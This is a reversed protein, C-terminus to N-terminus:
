LIQSRIVEDFAEIYAIQSLIIETQMTDSTNVSPETDNPIKLIEAEVGDLLEGFEHVLTDAEHDGFVDTIGLAMMVVIAMIATLAVSKKSNTRTM